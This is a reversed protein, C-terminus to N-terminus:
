KADSAADKATGAEAADAGADRSATWAVGSRRAADSDERRGVLEEILPLLADIVRGSKDVIACFKALARSDTLTSGFICGLQAKSLAKDTFSDIDKVTKPDLFCAEVSASGIGLGFCVLTVAVFRKITM